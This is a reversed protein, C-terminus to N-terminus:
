PPGPATKGTATGDDVVIVTSPEFSASYSGSKYKEMRRKMEVEEERIVHEVRARPVDLLEIGGPAIAGLAYEPNEPAGIKRVVITDLPAKLMEAIEYGVPVGGRPLALVLTKKGAYSALAKALKKGAEKRDSFM